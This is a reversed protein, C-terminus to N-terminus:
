WELAKSPTSVPQFRYPRLDAVLTASTVDLLQLGSTMKLRYLRGSAAFLLDGRRSWDAWDSRGLSVVTEGAADVVDHETVYWPGDREHVGIVRMRLTQKSGAGPQRKSWTLPTTYEFWVKSGFKNEKAVGSDDLHWGDRTLRADWIPSDEGWGPRDGFAEVKVRRPLRFGDGLAMEGPRHNLLIKNEAAFLGGGGWADGKPWLVLATLYPPRSVATWTFHPQRYKAAFYILRDGSPSLDCRREYIRGKLWQGTELEDTGLNWRLVLVQKSPGRRFVVATSGDRALLVHLRVSPTPQM